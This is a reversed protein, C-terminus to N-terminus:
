AGLFTRMAFQVVFLAAAGLLAPKAVTSPGLRRVKKGKKAV